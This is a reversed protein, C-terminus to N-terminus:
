PMVDIRNALKRYEVKMPSGVVSSLIAPRRGTVHTLQDRIALFLRGKEDYNNGTYRNQGDIDFQYGRMAFRNAPTVNDPVM